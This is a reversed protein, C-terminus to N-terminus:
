KQGSYRLEIDSDDTLLAEELKKMKDRLFEVVYFGILGNDKEWQPM